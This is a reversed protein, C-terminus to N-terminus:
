GRAARRAAVSAYLPVGLVSFVDVSVVDLGYAEAAAAHDTMPRVANGTLIKFFVLALYWAGTALMRRLGSPARAFDGVVLTGGLRLRAILHTRMRAEGELGFVNLFFNAVVVDYGENEHDFADGAVVTVANDVGAAGVNKHLARLMAASREVVTVHAGVRAVDVVDSGHGAGVVLVRDGAKVYKAAASRCRRIASGSALVTLADYIPGVLRYRDHAPARNPRASTM